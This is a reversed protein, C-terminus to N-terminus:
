GYPLPGTSSKRPSHLLLLRKRPAKCPEMSDSNSGATNNSQHQYPQQQNPWSNNVLFDATSLSESRSKIPAAPIPINNKMRSSSNGNNAYHNSHRASHGVYGTHYSNPSSYTINHRNSSHDQPMSMMRHNMVTATASVKSQRSASSPTRVSPSPPCSQLLYQM